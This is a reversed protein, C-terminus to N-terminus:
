QKRKRESKEAKRPRGPTGLEFGELASEPIVWYDGIATSEKKAGPFKGKWVWVRVSAVTAGLREAVEHVNLMKEGKKM